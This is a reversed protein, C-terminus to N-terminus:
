LMLPLNEQPRISAPTGRTRAPTLTQTGAHGQPEAQLGMPVCTGDGGPARPQSCGKGGKQRYLLSVEWGVGSLALLPSLRASLSGPNQFHHVPLVSSSQSQFGPPPLSSPPSPGGDLMPPHPAQTPMM